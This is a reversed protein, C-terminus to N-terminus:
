ASQVSVRPGTRTGPAPTGPLPLDATLAFGHARTAPGTRLTGGALALREALGTLGHGRPHPRKAPGDPSGSGDHGDSCDSGNPSDPGRGDDTVTLRVLAGERVAHETLAVRCHAAGSHRVVNTAGERVVWGLLAETAPPLPRGSRRVTLAIGAAALVSRACALETALCTERYGSVAERIETLARRGVEEIETIQTLAAAMDRDAVRRAAESKVVVLSLTHGLLDHLDRSFRLRERAVAGRAREEGAAGLARAVAAGHLGGVGLVALGGAWALAREGSPVEGFVVGALAVWPVAGAVAVV